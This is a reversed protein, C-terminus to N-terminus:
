EVINWSDDPDFQTINRAAETTDPGLNKEYVIGNRSVIFTMVGSDGYRAPFAILAFGGTMHGDVIYDKEGGPAHSGQRKLIKYFYGHYPAHKSLVKGSYGEATANAMMPGLPSEPQGNAAPWYIGNHQGKASRFRQAYAYVGNLPHRAAFDQQAEVYARCVEIVDLENRGVRRDLIEQAGATTDFWWGDKARALPIPMPWKEEGVVLVDQNDGKCEIEHAKDYASLFKERGQKDAVKDGSHILQGSNHGLIEELEDGRNDRAAAVLADVAQEPTAFVRQEADPARLAAPPPPPITENPATACAALSVLGGLIFLRLLGCPWPKSSAATMNQRHSM